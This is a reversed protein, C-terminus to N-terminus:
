DNQKYEDDEGFLTKGELWKMIKEPDDAKVKTKIEIICLKCIMIILYALYVTAGLIIVVFFLGISILILEGILKM